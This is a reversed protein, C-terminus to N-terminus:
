KRKWTGKRRWDLGGNRLKAELGDWLGAWSDAAYFANMESDRDNLCAKLKGAECFVLVTGTARPSGDEWKGEGLFEALAPFSELM